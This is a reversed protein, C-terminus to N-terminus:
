KNVTKELQEYAIVVLWILGTMPWIAAMLTFFFLVGAEVYNGNKREAYVLYSFVAIFAVFYLITYLIIM